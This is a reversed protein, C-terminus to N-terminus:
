ATVDGSSLAEDINKSTPEILSFYPDSWLRVYSRNQQVRYRLRSEAALALCAETVAIAESRRGFANALILGLQAFIVPTSPSRGHALILKAHHAALTVFAEPSVVYSADGMRALIDTAARIRPDTMPELASLQALTSRRVFRRIELLSRLADLRGPERPVAVGLRRVSEIGQAMSDTLRGTFALVWCRVRTARALAEPSLERALLRELRLDAAGTDATLAEAEALALEIEFNRDDQNDDQDAAAAIRLHLQAATPAGSALARRGARLELDLLREREDSSLEWVRKRLSTDDGAGDLALGLQLHEVIDFVHAELDADHHRHLHAALALHWSRRQAEDVMACAAERLREHSF